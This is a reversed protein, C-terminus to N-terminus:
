RPTHVSPHIKSCLMRKYFSFQDWLSSDWAVPTGWVFCSNYSCRYTSSWSKSPLLQNINPTIHTLSSITGNSSLSGAGLAVPLSSSNPVLSMVKNGGAVASAAEATSSVVDQRSVAAQNINSILTPTHQSATTTVPQSLCALLKSNTTGAQSAALLAQQLLQQLVCWCLWPWYGDGDDTNDDDDDDDSDGDGMTTTTTTTM